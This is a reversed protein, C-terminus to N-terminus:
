KVHSEPSHMTFVNCHLPRSSQPSLESSSLQGSGFVIGDGNGCGPPQRASVWIAHGSPLVRMQSTSRQSPMSFQGLSGLSGDSLFDHSSSPQTSYLLTSKLVVVVGFRSYNFHSMRHMKWSIQTKAFFVSIPIQPSSFLLFFGILSFYPFPMKRTQSKSQFIGFFTFTETKKPKAHCLM